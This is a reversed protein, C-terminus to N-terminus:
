YKEALLYMKLENWKQFASSIRFTPYQSPVEDTHVIMHGLYKFIRVNKLEVEGIYILSLKAKIEEDVNFAMTETQDATSIKM